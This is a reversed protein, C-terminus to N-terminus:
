LRVSRMSDLFYQPFFRRYEKNYLLLSLNGDLCFTNACEDAGRIVRGKAQVLTRVTMLEAYGPKDSVRIKLKQNTAVPPFPVKPIICFQGLDGKLDLGETFAPGILISDKKKRHREYAQSQKEGTDLNVYTFRHAHRSYQRILNTLKYSVSHIIGRPQGFETQGEIIRDIKEVLRPAVADINRFNLRLEDDWFFPQNKIPFWSPIRIYGVDDEESDLDLESCTHELDLFTASMLLVRPAMRLIDRVLFSGYVPEMILFRFRGEADFELRPLWRTRTANELYTEIGVRQRNLEDLDTLKNRLERSKRLKSPTAKVEKDLDSIRECLRNQYEEIWARSESIDTLLDHHGVLKADLDSIKISAMGVLSEELLHAEDVVLLERANKNQSDLIRKRNFWAFHTNTMGGAHRDKVYKDVAVAYPCDKKCGLSSGLEGAAKALTIGSQCSGGIASCSYNASGMVTKWGLQEYQEILVNKPTCGWASGEFYRMTTHALATKGSGVPSDVIVVRKGELFMRIIDAIVERQNPWYAPEGNKDKFPFCKDMKELDIGGSINKIKEPASSLPTDTIGFNIM